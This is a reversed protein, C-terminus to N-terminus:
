VRYVGPHYLDPRGRAWDLTQALGEDLAMRAKWGALEQAAATSGILQFVESNEPRVRERTEVVPLRRGVLRLHQLEDGRAFM